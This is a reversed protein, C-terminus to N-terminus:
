QPQLQEPAVCLVHTLRAAHVTCAGLTLVWHSREAFRLFRELLHQSVPFFRLLSSAHQRAQLWFFLGAEKVNPGRQTKADKWSSGKPINLSNYIPPSADMGACTYHSLEKRIKEMECWNATGTPCKKARTLLEDLAVESSAGGFYEMDIVQGTLGVMTPYGSSRDYSPFIAATVNKGTIEDVFPATWRAETSEVNLSMFRYFSLMSDAAELPEAIHTWSAGTQCAM